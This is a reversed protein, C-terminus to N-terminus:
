GGNRIVEAEALIAEYHEPSVESLKRVGYKRVVARLKNSHVRSLRSIDAIISFFEGETLPQKEEVPAEAAENGSFMEELSDAVGNIASAATRLDSIATGLESIKGM